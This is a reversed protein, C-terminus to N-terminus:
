GEGWKLKHRLVEYFNTQPSRIFKSKYDSAQIEIIDQSLIPFGVQGDFTVTAGEEFTKLLVEIKSNKPVVVPRNTLMHPSIPTLLLAEVSPEFIPGGASMSYATSGTPTAVIVGDGQLSTVFQKNILIEMNIMRPLTGKSIVVDNQLTYRTIIEGQRRIGVTLMLREDIVFEDKFVRILMTFMDDTGIETLFGLSGLNIGLIPVDRGEVLRSVSLLTGDGGLVIIMDVLSPVESKKPSSTLGAMAATDSDMVIEKGQEKLWPLLRELVKKVPGTRIPKAIIGIKKMTGISSHNKLLDSPVLSM